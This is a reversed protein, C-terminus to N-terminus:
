PCARSVGLPRVGESFGQGAEDGPRLSAFGAREEGRSFHSTKRAHNGSSDWARLGADNKMKKQEASGEAESCSAGCFFVKEPVRVVPIM